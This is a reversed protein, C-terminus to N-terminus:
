TFTLDLPDGIQRAQHNQLELTLSLYYRFVADGVQVNRSLVLPKTLAIFPLTDGNPNQEM